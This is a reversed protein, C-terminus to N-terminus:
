VVKYIILPEGSAEIEAIRQLKGQYEEPDDRGIDLVIFQMPAFPKRDAILKELAEVRQSLTPM